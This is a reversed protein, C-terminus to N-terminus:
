PRVRYITVGDAAYVTPFMAAFKALGDAPYRGIEVPGVYIYEVAYHALVQRAVEPDLTTFLQELAVERQGPEDYNGRWQLEHSSWGLVTPLGTLSAVRGEYAYARHADAPTEVIVPVGTVNTNLWRIAAADQPYRADLWAAGDLTWPVGHEQARAPIALFTYVLGALILLGSLAALGYRRVPSPADEADDPTTWRALQWAGALSWLVWAQFYFKFITNMRTMFIDKLYLFEPALTLGLGLFALLLPFLDASDSSVAEKETHEMRRMFTLVCISVGLALLGGVWPNALRNLVAATTQEPSLSYGQVTERRLISMLYPYAAAAGMILGAVAIGGLFAANWGLIAWLSLRARRAAGVLLGGLPVLLPAFMVVFHPLRTANFLNPLIGGAQSRLAYWFPFYLAISLVGLFVGEPALRWAREFLPPWAERTSSAVVTELADDTDSIRGLVLAGFMLAWYIPLDWTNLFGLTGLVIAYPLLPTLRPLLTKWDWVRAPAGRRYLNLALAVILLVFPLALVHPHMDGLIFSFAPFEDIVELYEGWPSYDRLTRSAQWWWFFRQPIWSFPPQPAGDLNRIDLWAWFAPPLLGRSHLSELLGEGNGTVLLLLPAFLPRVADRVKGVRPALLDYVIGYAGVAALAYWGANGLNFAVTAPLGSLRTVLGLLLYGLYYYSIAYGSLWPDHPPMAPARLVANLFAIEMWKEGGATELQPQAARVLAWAILALLFLSETVVVFRRNERWWAAVEGWRGRLLWLGLAFILAASTLAAAATNAWLHLICGWWFLVGTLLLGLAKAAAYGRSPLHRLWALALPTGALALGQLVLYWTLIASLM